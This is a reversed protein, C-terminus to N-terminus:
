PEEAKKPEMEDARTPTVSQPELGGLARVYTVLQWIQFDPIHGGFSPM